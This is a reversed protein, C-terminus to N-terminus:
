RRKKELAALQDELSTPTQAYVDEIMRHAPPPGVHEEAALAARAERDVEAALAGEAQEDLLGERGLFRRFRAVGDDEVAVSAVVAEILTAGEGRRARDAAARTAALVALLDAGDVRDADIGYALAKVAVTESVTEPTASPVAAGAAEQAALDNVCVFIVPLRYVGAFNLGAHFDEASAEAADLFALAVTPRRKMKMAWAVGAAHPLQTAAHSSAPLLNLSRPFAPYGAAGRGAALDNADGLLQAVLTSVPLGRHLSAGAERRGPAIVDEAGLAATAGVVVAETGRRSPVAGIRGSTALAEIVRDVSRIRLMTRYVDRLLAPELAPLAARDATGDPAVVQALGTARRYSEDSFAEVFAADVDGMGARIRPRAGGKAPAGLGAPPVRPPPVSPLRSKSAAM